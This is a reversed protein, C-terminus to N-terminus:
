REDELSSEYLELSEEAELSEEETEAERIRDAIDALINGSYPIKRFWM